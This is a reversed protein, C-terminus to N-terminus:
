FFNFSFEAPEADPIWKRKKPKVRTMEEDAIALLDPYQAKLRERFLGYADVGDSFGSVQDEKDKLFRLVSQLHAPPVFNQTVAISEDLNVVLHWWGIILSTTSLNGSPIYIVEGAHCIGRICSPHKAATPYFDRLWDAISIPSTVESEDSNTSNTSFTGESVYVGPPTTHPPFM